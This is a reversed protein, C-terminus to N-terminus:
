TDACEACVQMDPNISQEFGDVFQDMTLLGDRDQDLWMLLEQMFVFDPAQLCNM